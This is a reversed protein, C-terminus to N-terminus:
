HQLDAPSIPQNGHFEIERVLVPLGEEIEFVLSAKLQDPSLRERADVKADHFGRYRYFTAVKRAMREILSRDLTESGDYELVARIVLSRFGRNGRFRIDYRPGSFIPLAVIAGKPPHYIVPEGIRARCFGQQRYLERLKELKGNIQELDLVGGVELGLTELIRSLALGPSGGIHTAAIRTPEGERVSFM